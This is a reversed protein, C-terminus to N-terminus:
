MGSLGDAAIKGQYRRLLKGQYCLLSALLHLGYSQRLCCELLAASQLLVAPDAHLTCEGSTYEGAIQAQM